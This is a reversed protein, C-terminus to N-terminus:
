AAVAEATAHRMRRRYGVYGMAATCLGVLLMSSPEPVAVQVTFFETAANDITGTYIASGPSVDSNNTFDLDLPGFSSVGSTITNGNSGSSGPPPYNLLNFQTAAGNAVSITVTGILILGNADPNVNSATGLNNPSSVGISQQTPTANGSDAGFRFSGTPWPSSLNATSSVFTSAGNGSNTGKYLGVAAANMGGDAIILSTSSGTLTEQLYVNLTLNGAAAVTFNNSVGGGATPGVVYSYSVSAQAAMPMLASVVVAFSMSFKRM